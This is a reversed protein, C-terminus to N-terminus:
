GYAAAHHRDGFRGIMGGRRERGAGCNAPVVRLSCDHGGDNATEGSGVRGGDAKGHIGVLLVIRDPGGDELAIFGHLLPQLLLRWVDDEVNEVVVHRGEEHIVVRLEREAYTVDKRHSVFAATGALQRGQLPMRCKGLVNRLAKDGIFEVQAVELVLTEVM